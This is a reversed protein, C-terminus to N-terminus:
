RLLIMKKVSTYSSTELSYFYIGSPLGSADFNVKHQGAKQFGDVLTVVKEGLPDYVNLKVQQDEPISYKITTSPNFPNPYNQLLAFAAPLNVDVEIEKSYEFSGDFDIQKLRYNYKGSSVNNDTFSYLHTETSTGNGAVFGIKEWEENGSQGTGEASQRNIEFGKNNTETATQWNLVLSRENLHASFSILEVPVATYTVELYLPNIGSWGDFDIFFFSTFSREIIGTAFWGRGSNVADEFDSIVGNGMPYDHWGPSFGSSEDSYIYAISDEYSSLIQNTITDAGDIVPNVDDMPTASWYPAYADNVYGFFRINQIQTAQPMTSVDYVAWGVHSQDSYIDGDIKTTGDTNGTWYQADMPYFDIALFSPNQETTFTWGPGTTSYDLAGTPWSNIPTGSYVQIVNGVPGFWVEVNTTGPSNDWSLTIGSVNVNTTGTPPDPNSAASVPCPNGYDTDLAFPAIQDGWDYVLTTMGTTKDMTRLQGSNVDGNFTSLYITHTEFDYSMGQENVPTYGLEGLPTLSANSVNLIYARCPTANVEYVYCTGNEDFCLEMIYGTTGQFSGIFTATLTNLNLSYLGFFGVMYYKDTVPNYSIGNPNDNGMGSMYGLSTCTGTGPDFLFLERLADTLYFNGDGGKCMSTASFPSTFTGITTFPTGDPIPIAINENTTNDNAYAVSALPWSDHHGRGRYKVLPTKSASLIKQQAFTTCLASLLIVGLVLPLEKRMIFEKFSNTSKCIVTNDFQRIIL